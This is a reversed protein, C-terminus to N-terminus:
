LQSIAQQVSFHETKLVLENTDESYIGIKQNPTKQIFIKSAKDSIIEILVGIQLIHQLIIPTSKLIRKGTNLSFVLDDLNNEINIGHYKLPSQIKSHLEPTKIAYELLTPDQLIQKGDMKKINEIILGRNIINQDLLENSEMKLKRSQELNIQIQTKNSKEQNILSQINM